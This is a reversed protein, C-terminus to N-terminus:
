QSQSLRYFMFDEHISPESQLFLWVKMNHYVLRETNHYMTCYLFLLEACEAFLWAQDSAIVHYGQTTTLVFYLNSLSYSLVSFASLFFDLVQCLLVDILNGLLTFGFPKTARSIVCTLFLM